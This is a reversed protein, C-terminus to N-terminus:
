FNKLFEYILEYTDQPKEVLLNHGVGDMVEMKSNPISNKIKEAHYPPTFVDERGAIVLTSTDLNKLSDLFNVQLCATIIDKLAPISSTKEM